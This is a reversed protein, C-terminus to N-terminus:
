ALLSHVAQLEEDPISGPLEMLDSLWGGPGTVTQTRSPDIHFINLMIDHGPHDTATQQLMTRRHLDLIEQLVGIQNERGDGIDLSSAHLPYATRSNLNFLALLCIQRYSLEGAVRVLLNAYGRDLSPQFALNGLMRGLLEVKREEPSRAAALLVGEAVEEAACAGEGEFWDERPVAGEALRSNITAAAFAATAGIRARERNGLFRHALELTASRLGWTIAPGATAGAIAGPGGAILLGLGAGAASGAIESGAEILQRGVALSAAEDETM